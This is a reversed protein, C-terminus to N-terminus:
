VEFDDGPDERFGEKGESLDDVLEQLIQQDAHRFDHMLDREDGDVRFRGQGALDVLAFGKEVEPGLEEDHKPLYRRAPNAVQMMLAERHRMLEDASMGIYEAALQEVEGLVGEGDRFGGDMKVLMETAMLLHGPTIDRAKLAQMGTEIFHELLGRRDNRRAQDLKFIQAHIRIARESRLKFFAVITKYTKWQRYAREIGKREPHNCVECSERHRRLAKLARLKADETLGPGWVEVQQRQLVAKEEPNTSEM